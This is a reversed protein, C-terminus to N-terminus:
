IPSKLKEKMKEVDPPLKKGFGEMLINSNENLSLFIGM